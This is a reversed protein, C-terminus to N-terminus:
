ACWLFISMGFAESLKRLLKSSEMVPDAAGIFSSSQFNTRKMKADTLAQGFNETILTSLSDNPSADGGIEPVNIPEVDSTSQEVNIAIPSKTSM